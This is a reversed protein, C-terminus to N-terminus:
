AYPESGLVLVMHPAVVEHLGPRMVPPAKTHERHDILMRSLTKRDIHRSIEAVAIHKLSQCPQHRCSTDWPVDARVVTSLKGGLSHSAPQAIDTDRRQVNFRPARPLVSEDLAEIALKSVLQKIALDEVRKSFRLDQDIAPPIVVVCLTRM